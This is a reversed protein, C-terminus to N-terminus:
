YIIKSFPVGVSLNISMNDSFTQRTVLQHTVDFYSFRFEFNASPAGAKDILVIPIGVIWNLPKHIGINQELTTSIGIHSDPPYYVFGVKAKPTLFTQYSGVFLTNIKQQRLTVSDVGGANKYQEYNVRELSYNQTSNTLSLGAEVTLFFRGSKKTEWFRTHNISLEFPYSKKTETASRISQVVTFRQLIVPVYFSLNTWHTTIRKYRVTEILEQYQSDAFKRSFEDILKAYFRSRIDDKVKTFEPNTLSGQKLQLLSNTFEEERKKIEQEILVLLSERYADMVNKELCNHLVTKPKSIWTKKFTAGLENSFPKETFASIFANAVNARVGVVYFSRVPEDTGTPQFLNHNLSFIGDLTNLTIYNKYLSLSKYDTLYSGIKDSLFLNMARNSILQQNTCSESRITEHITQLDSILQEPSQAHLTFSCSVLCLILKYIKGM